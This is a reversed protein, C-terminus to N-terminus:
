SATRVTAALGMCPRSNAACPPTSRGCPRLQSPSKNGIFEALEDEEDYFGSPIGAAALTQKMDREARLYDGPTIVPFGGARLMEIGKFREKFAPQDQLLTLISQISRDSRLQGFAWPILSPVGFNTLAARLAEEGDRFAAEKEAAAVPDPSAGAPPTENADPNQGSGGAMELVPFTELDTFTM